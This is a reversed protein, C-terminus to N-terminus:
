KIDLLAKIHNKPLDNAKNLSIMSSESLIKDKVMNMTEEAIDLDTIRSISSELNENLQHLNKMEYEIRGLTSGIKGRSNAISQIHTKISSLATAADSTTAISGSVTPIVLLPHTFTNGDGDVTVELGGTSSDTQSYEMLYRSIGSSHPLDNWSGGGWGAVAYDENGANNPEGAAWDTYDWTEGTVWKWSGETDEDTAGIWMLENIGGISDSITEKESASTITALHGGRSEADAKADMWRVCPLGAAARQCAGVCECGGRPGDYNIVEYGSKGEYARQFMAVGNFTEGVTSNVFDKLEQFEKDYLERDTNSKTADQALLTLESMRELASAVENLYGNQTQVFSVANQLNTIASLNRYKKSDLRSSVALGAADDQPEVIKSGSSLRSMTKKLRDWVKSVNGKAEIAATNTNIVVANHFIRLNWPYNELM